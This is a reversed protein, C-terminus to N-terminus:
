ACMCGVGQPGRSNRTARGALGDEFCLFGEEEGVAAAARGGYPDRVHEEERLVMLDETERQTVSSM